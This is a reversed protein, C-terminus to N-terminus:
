LHSAFCPRCTKTGCLYTLCDEGGELMKVRRAFVSRKAQVFQATAKIYTTQQMVMKEGGEKKTSTLHPGVGSRVSTGDVVVPNGCNCGAV